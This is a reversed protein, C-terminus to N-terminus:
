AENKADYKLISSKLKRRHIMRQIRGWVGHKRRIPLDGMGYWVNANMKDKHEWFFHEQAPTPLVSVIIDPTTANMENIVADLAGVCNETAYAGAIVIKKFEHQLEAKVEEVKQESEGILYVSKHNREIRKFFEFFFDNEETERIRQMSSSKTAQLIEKEGIVAMDLSQIVERVVEDEEALMLMQMSISEITNLVNNSTYSEIQRMAERVTYNDLPLGLVDIKKIM